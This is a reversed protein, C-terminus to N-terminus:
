RDFMLKFEDFSILNLVEKRSLSLASYEYFEDDMSTPAGINKGKSILGVGWDIDICCSSLDDMKRYKVFAKWTSGNWYKNAPTWEYSYQDRAHWETPPNCDHLVIFGDDKVYRLANSIDRDVYSALHMGDIFVVDFKISKSLLAGQDLQEFFDDSTLKFDVPNQTYELGPDVSYKVNANILAFNDQPNRVGIELYLTERNLSALLHNIVDYRKKDSTVQDISGKQADLYHKNKFVVEEYYEGLKYRRYLKKFYKM